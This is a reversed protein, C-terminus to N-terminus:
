NGMRDTGPPVNRLEPTEAAERASTAAHGIAKEAARANELEETKQKLEMELRKCEILRLLTAVDAKKACKPDACRWGGVEPVMGGSQTQKLKQWAIFEGSGCECLLNAM